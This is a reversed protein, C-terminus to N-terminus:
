WISIVARSASEPSRKMTWILVQGRSEQDKRRPVVAPGGSQFLGSRAQGTGWFAIYIQNLALRPGGEGVVPGTRVEIELFVRTPGRGAM